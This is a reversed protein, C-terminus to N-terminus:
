MGTATNLVEAYLIWIAGADEGNTDDYQAGMVLDDLGDGDLDGANIMPGRGFYSSDTDDVGPDTAFGFADAKPSISGSTLPGYLLWLEAPSATFDDPYRDIALDVHGDGDLDLAAFDDALESGAPTDDLIQVDGDYLDIDGSLPGLFIDIRGWDNTPVFATAVAIDDYGDGDLDGLPEFTPPDNEWPEATFRAAADALSHTADNPGTVLALPAHGFNTDDSYVLVDDYGDGNTDGAPGVAAGAAAGDYAGYWTAHIEEPASTLPGTLIYAAGACEELGYPDECGGTQDYVNGGVLDPWGDGNFDGAGRYGAEMGTYEWLSVGDESIFFGSVPGFIM